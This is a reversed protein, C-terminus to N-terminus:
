YISESIEMHEFINIAEKFIIYECDFVKVYAQNYWSNHM